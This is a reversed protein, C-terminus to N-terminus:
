GTWFLLIRTYPHVSGQHKPQVRSPELQSTQWNFIDSDNKCLVTVGLLIVLSLRSHSIQVLFLANNNVAILGVSM